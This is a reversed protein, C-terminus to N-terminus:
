QVILPLRPSIERVFASLSIQGKRERDLRIFLLDAEKPLYTVEKEQLFLNLDLISFSGRGVKDITNFVDRINLTYIKNLREREREIVNETEIIFKLLNVLCGKTTNLFIEGKNYHTFTNTSQREEIMSRYERCFPTLMDFLDSYTLSDDNSLSYKKMLLIIEYYNPYIDLANLGKQLDSQTIFNHHTNEFVQFADGINFDVRKALDIKLKEIKLEIDMILKLFQIVVEENIRKSSNSINIYPNSKSYSTQNSFMNISSPRIQLQPTKEPGDRIFLSDSVKERKQKSQSNQNLLNVPTSTTSFFHKPTSLKSLDKITSLNDTLQHNNNSDSGFVTELDEATVIGNRDIDLKKIIRKIDEVGAKIHNRQFFLMLVQGSVYDEKGKLTRYLDFVSFDRRMKIASMLSDITRILNLEKEFIRTISYEISYPLVSNSFVTNDKNIPPIQEDCLIINLFESYSLSHSKDSDYFLIIEKAEKQTCYVSNDQLFTVINNETIFHKGEKDFRKFVQYPCFSNHKNLNQRSIELNVEGESLVLFLKCIRSETELSLM